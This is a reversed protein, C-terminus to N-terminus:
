KFTYGIGFKVEPSDILGVKFETFLGGRHALGILLNFGPNVDTGGGHHDDYSYILMAPGGGAYVSWAKRPIPFWYAFEVNAAVTTVGDGLGLEVNPRFSLRDFLYGTDFHGGFYFQDPSASVGARVGAGGAQALAPRSACLLVIAFPILVVLLRVRHLHLHRM